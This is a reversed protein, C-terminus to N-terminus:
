SRQAEPGVFGNNGHKSRGTNFRRAMGCAKQKSRDELMVFSGVERSLLPGIVETFLHRVARILSHAASTLKLIAAIASGSERVQRM